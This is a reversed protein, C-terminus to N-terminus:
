SSADRVHSKLYAVVRDYGWPEIQDTGRALSKPLELKQCQRRAFRLRGREGKPFRLGIVVLSGPEMAAILEEVSGDTDNQCVITRRNATQRAQLLQCLAKVAGPRGRLWVPGDLVIAPAEILDPRWRRASICEVLADQVARTDLRLPPVDPHQGLRMAVSTKGSGEPGLVVVSARESLIRPLARKGIYESSTGTLLAPKATLSSGLRPSQLTIGM